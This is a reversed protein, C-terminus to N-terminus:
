SPVGHGANQDPEWQFLPVMGDVPSATAKTNVGLNVRRDEERGEGRVPSQCVGIWTLGVGESMMDIGDSPNPMAVIPTSTKM